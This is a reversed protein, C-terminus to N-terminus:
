GEKFDGTVNLILEALVYKSFEIYYEDYDEDYEICSITNDVSFYLSTIGGQLYNGAYLCLENAEEDYRVKAKSMNIQLGMVNEDCTIELEKGNVMESFDKIMVERRM